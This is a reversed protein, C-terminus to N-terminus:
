RPVLAARGAESLRWAIATGGRGTGRRIGSDELWGGNLLECRRPAASYLYLDTVAAIEGDTLGTEGAAAIANLVTQRQTGARPSVLAAAAVETDRPRAHLSVRGTSPDSLIQFLADGSM